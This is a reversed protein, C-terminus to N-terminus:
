LVRNFAGTIDLALLTAVYDGSDWVARVQNTLLDLATETSRNERAGMQQEPLM